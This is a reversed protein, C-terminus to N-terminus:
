RNIVKPHVAMFFMFHPYRLNSIFLKKIRKKTAIRKFEPRDLDMPGWINPGTRARTEWLCKQLEANIKLEKRLDDVEVGQGIAPPKPFGPFHKKM